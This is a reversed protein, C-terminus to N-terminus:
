ALARYFSARLAMPQTEDMAIRATGDIPDCGLAELGDAVALPEKHPTGKQRSGRKEGPKSDRNDAM